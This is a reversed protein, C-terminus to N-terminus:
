IGTSRWPASDQVRFSVRRCFSSDNWASSTFLIKSKGFNEEFLATLQSASLSGNILALTRAM